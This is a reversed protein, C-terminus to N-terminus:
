LRIEPVCFNIRMQLHPVLKRGLVRDVKLFPAYPRGVGSKTHSSPPPQNQFWVFTCRIVPLVSSFFNADRVNGFSYNWPSVFAVFCAM